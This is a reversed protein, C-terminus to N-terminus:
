LVSVENWPKDEENAGREILFNMKTLRLSLLTM